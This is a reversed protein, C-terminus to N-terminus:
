PSVAKTFLDGPQAAPSGPPSDFSLGGSAISELSSIDLDLGSFLSFNFDIGSVEKFLSDRRLFRAYRQEIRVQVEVETGADSLRYGTVEGVPVQRFLVPSGIALSGLSESLIVVDLGPALNGSVVPPESLGDFRTTLKGGGAQAAIFNGTLLGSPHEIGALSIKPEVVWFLSGARALFHGQQDLEASVALQQGSHTLRVATVRGVPQDHYRIEAGPQISKGVAFNMRVTLPQRESAQRDRYLTLKQNHKLVRGKSNPTYFAVGGQLVSKLPGTDIKAGRLSIDAQIGGALYFRSSRNVLKRYQKDIEAYLTLSRADANISVNSVVGVPRNMFLVPAGAEIGSAFDSQLRLRLKGSQNPDLLDGGNSASDFSDYLAYRAPPKARKDGHSPNFFGIGGRVLSTASEAEVALGDIDLQARIGSAHWFRSDATVLHSYRREVVASVEVTKGDRSLQYHLVEGVPLQRYLLPAGKSISGLKDSSLNILKGNSRLQLDSPQESASFERQAEGPGPTLAITPGSFLKGISGLQTLSFDPIDVWFRSGQTLMSRARPDILLTSNLFEFNDTLETNLVRGIPINRWKVPTGESVPSDGPLRLQVRIGREAASFDSYLTFSDAATAQPDNLQPTSLYIGGAIITAFSGAQIDVKPFDVEIDIGSANWFRSSTKVLSAYREAIYIDVQVQEASDTLQVNLVQGIEIDRYFVQTGQTLGSANDALLSVYLGQKHQRPPPPEDQLRYESRPEDSLGPEFGFYYGSLLTELGKIGSISIQPKVLWFKADNTLGPVAEPSMQIIATIHELDEDLKFDVVTGAPLGRYLVKTEGPKIGEASDLAIEIRVGADRYQTYVMWAAIAATLLPLIWIVSPLRRRKLHPQKQTM